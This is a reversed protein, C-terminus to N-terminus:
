IGFLDVVNQRSIKAVEETDLNHSKAWFECINFIYAPQNTKGRFPNPSLYPADTEFLLKESPLQDFVENLKEDKNFTAIGNVSIYLDRSLAKKMNQLNDTFCHLTGRLAKFNDFIPWFDEYADRIHFSIPLDHKQALDLQNELLKIQQARNYPKYHYDLGIDGLGILKKRDSADIINAIGAVEEAISSIDEGPHIGVTAYVGDYESAFEIAARSDDVSTGATIIKKVGNEFSRKLVDDPWNYQKDHVHCHSDVLEM